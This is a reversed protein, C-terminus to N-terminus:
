VKAKLAGRSAESEMVRTSGSNKIDLESAVGLMLEPQPLVVNATELM